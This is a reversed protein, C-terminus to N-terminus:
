IETNNSSANKEDYIPKPSLNAASAETLTASDPPPLSAAIKQLDQRKSSFQAEYRQFLKRNSEGCATCIMAMTIVCALHLNSRSESYTTMGYDKRRVLEQLM